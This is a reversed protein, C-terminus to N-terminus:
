SRGLEVEAMNRIRARGRHLLVRLNGETIGLVGCVEASPLGELDRLLVAQRQAEPLAAFCEKLRGLVQGAAIREVADDAWPVPPSTWEGHRGFREEPVVPGDRIDVPTERHERTGARRGCNAVISFLWTRLSSRGEFKAIGRVVGLWAEQAVEEAVARSPVFTAAFRVMPAHYKDVLVVFAAEDGARLRDVLEGDDGM